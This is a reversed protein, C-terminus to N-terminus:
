NTRHDARESMDFYEVVNRTHLPANKEAAAIRKDNEKRIGCMTNVGIKEVGLAQLVKASGGVGQNWQLVTQATCVSLTKALLCQNQANRGCLISNIAENQNQTIGKIRKLLQADSLRTFLPKLEERFAAPLCHDRNYLNTNNAVDQQYRCWSNIGSLCYM